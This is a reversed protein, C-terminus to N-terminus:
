SRGERQDQEVKQTGLKTRINGTMPMRSCVIPATWRSAALVLLRAVTLM